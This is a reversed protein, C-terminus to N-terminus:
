SLYEKSTEGLVNMEVQALFCHPLFLSSPSCADSAGHDFLRQRSLAVSPMGQWHHPPHPVDAIRESGNWAQWRKAAHKEM